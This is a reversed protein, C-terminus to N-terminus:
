CLDEFIEAIFIQGITTQNTGVPFLTDVKMKTTPCMERIAFVKVTQSCAFDASLLVIRKGVIDQHVWVCKVRAFLAHHDVLLHLM